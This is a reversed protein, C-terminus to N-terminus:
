TGSCAWNSQTFHNFHQNGFSGTITINNARIASAATVGTNEDFHWLDVLGSTGDPIQAYSVSTFLCLLFIPILKVM